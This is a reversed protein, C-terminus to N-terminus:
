PMWYKPDPVRVGTFLPHTIRLLRQTTAPETVGVLLIANQRERAYTTELYNLWAVADHVQDYFYYPVVPRGHRSRWCVAISRGGSYEPLEIQCTTPNQAEWQAIEESVNRLREHAENAGLGLKTAEGFSESWTAWRHQLYTRTQIEFRVNLAVTANVPQKFRMVHNIGRYGTQAPSTIYDRLGYWFRSTQIRDSLAWVTALDQCIIRVGVVDDLRGLSFNTKPRRIKRRISNLRKLRVSVTARDPVRSADVIKLTTRLCRMRFSRYHQVAAVREISEASECFAKGIRDIAALSHFPPEHEAAPCEDLVSPTM